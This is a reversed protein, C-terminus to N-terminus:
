AERLLQGLPEEELQTFEELDPLIVKLPLPLAINSCIQSPDMRGHGQVGHKPRQGPMM